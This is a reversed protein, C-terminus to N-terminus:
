LIPVRLDPQHGQAGRSGAKRGIQHDRLVFALFDDIVNGPLNM